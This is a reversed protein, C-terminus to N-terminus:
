LRRRYIVWEVSLLLLIMVVIPTILSLKGYIEGANKVTEVRQGNKTVHIGNLLVSEEEPFRVVFATEQIQGNEESLVHYLGAHRTETFVAKQERVEGPLEKGSPLIWTINTKKEQSLHMRVSDGPLCEIVDLSGAQEGQELIGQVLIPFEMQLPLDSDHLDFGIVAVSRGDLTGFYGVSDEGYNIFSYSWQPLQYTVGKSCATAFSDLGETLTNQPIQLTANKIGKNKEAIIDGNLKVDGPPNVLMINEDHYWKTPLMGDYVIFDYSKDPDINKVSTTKELTVSDGLSLARELFSNQETVLLVHREQVGGLLEYAENDAALCDGAVIDAKFYGGSEYLKLFQSGSLERFTVTQMEGEQVSVTQVDYLDESLHLEVDTTFDGSGYNNIGAQVTVSGNEEMEHHLWSIGVNSGSVSLDVIDAELNELDVDSDTFGMMHYDGWQKIMPLIMRVTPQLDGAADTADINKIAHIIKGHDTSESALIKALDGGTILTVKTGQKLQNVYKIAQQKAVDLKTQEGNYIGSMSGSCDICLVVHATDGGKRQLYPMLLGAVLLLLALIQIYMLLHHRFREWPTAAQMTEYAERWLNLAPIRKERVKQKLLYLLVIGPVFALFALPWLREVGM